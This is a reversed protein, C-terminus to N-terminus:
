VNKKNKLWEQVYWLMGCGGGIDDQGAPDFMRVNYGDELFKNMFEKIVNHNRYGADKMTEDASCVVSFTLNFFMPSFLDKLRNLHDDTVNTGDVCYNLYVKRGTEKSWTIGADRIKRLPMKNKFPILTNREEEFAKHISFQLGVKDIQKSLEIMKSFTKDNNIGVTSILLQANPYLVNLLKIASEVNDWNLMPEGMSMFMIQFKDSSLVDNAIKMDEIMHTVQYIIEDPKLNRIFKKGTGCFKCGVPCGSQVSCCIVTRNKFSEYKYLVAETVVEETTFVYKWVNQESSDFRKVENFM